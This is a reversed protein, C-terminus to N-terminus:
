QHMRFARVLQDGASEKFIEDVSAHHSSVKIDRNADFRIDCDPARGIKVGFRLDSTEYTFRQGALSSTLVEIILRPTETM